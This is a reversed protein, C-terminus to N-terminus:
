NVGDRGCAVLMWSSGGSGGERNGDYTGSGFPNPSCPLLPVTLFLAEEMDEKM